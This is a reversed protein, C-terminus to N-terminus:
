YNRLNLSLSPAAFIWVVRTYCKAAAKEEGAVNEMAPSKETRKELEAAALGLARTTATLPAGAAAAAHRRAGSSQERRRRGALM